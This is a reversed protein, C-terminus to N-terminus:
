APTVTVPVISIGLGYAAAAQLQKDTAHPVILLGSTVLNSPFQYMLALTASNAYKIQDDTPAAYIFIAIRRFSGEHLLPIIWELLPFQMYQIPIPYYPGPTKPLPIKVNAKLPQINVPNNYFWVNLIAREADGIGPPPEPPPPIAVVAM